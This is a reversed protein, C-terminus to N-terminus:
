VGTVQTSTWHKNSGDVMGVVVWFDLLRLVPAVAGESGGCYLSLFHTPPMLTHCRHAQQLQSFRVWQPGELVSRPLFLCRDMEATDSFCNQPNITRSCFGGHPRWRFGSYRLLAAACLLFLCLWSGRQFFDLPLQHRSIIQVLPFKKLSDQWRLVHPIMRLLATSTFSKFFLSADLSIRLGSVTECAHAWQDRWLLCLTAYLQM